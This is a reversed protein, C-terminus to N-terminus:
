GGPLNEVLATVDGGQVLLLAELVPSLYLGDELVRVFHVVRKVPHLM